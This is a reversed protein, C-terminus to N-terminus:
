PVKVLLTVLWGTRRVISLATPVENLVDRYALAHGVPAGSAECRPWRGAAFCRRLLKMRVAVGAEPLDAGRKESKADVNVAKWVDHGRECDEPGADVNVAKHAKVECKSNQTVFKYKGAEKCHNM